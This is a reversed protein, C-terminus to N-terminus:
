TSRRWRPRLCPRSSIGRSLVKLSQCCLISGASTSTRVAGVQTALQNKIGNLFDEDASALADMVLVRGVLQDPHDFGIQSNSGDKSVRFKGSPKAKLRALYKEMATLEAATVKHVAKEETHEKKTERAPM